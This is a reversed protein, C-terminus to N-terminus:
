LSMGLTLVAGLIPLIRAWQNGRPVLLTLLGFAFPVFPFVDILQM